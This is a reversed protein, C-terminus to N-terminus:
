VIVEFDKLVEAKAITKTLYDHISAMATRKWAGGDAEWLSIKVGAEEDHLRLIFPSQPQEIELFTRFPRLMVPNPVPSKVSDVIAGRKASVKQTFGDDESTTIAEQSMTGLLKVVADVQADQVFRTRMGIIFEETSMRKAFPFSETSLRTTARCLVEREKFQPAPESVVEVRAHDYVHVRLKKPDAVGDKHARGLYAVFGDLTTVELAEYQPEDVAHIPKDTYQRGDIEVNNANSMLGLLKIADAIM